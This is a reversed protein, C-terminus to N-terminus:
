CLSFFNLFSQVPRKFTARPARRIRIQSGVEANNWHYLNTLLGFLYRYDIFMEAYPADPYDGKTWKEFAPASKNTNMIFAELVQDSQLVNIIYYYDESVESKDLARGYSTRLLRTFNIKEPVVHIDVEFDLPLGTIEELRKQRDAESYPETRLAGIDDTTLDITGSGGDDLVIAAPDFALVEVPDAVGRYDNMPALRSGLIYKGAFPLHHRAPFAECYRLYRGFFNAKKKAAEAILTERDEELDYYTQPYPGAGTFGLALLDLDINKDKIYAQIEAVHPDNWGCDNLNLVANKGDHVLIASDVDSLSGSLNPFIAIETGGIRLEKIPSVEIGDSAAKRALFNQEFDPVVVKKPGFKAFLRKLFVPDYHDPHVHSIYIVDPESMRAFPDDVKPFHYWSGDYIGDTFWPDM